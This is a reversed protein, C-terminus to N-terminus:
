GMTGALGRARAGLWVGAGISVVLDLLSYVLAPALYAPDDAVATSILVLALAAFRMGTVLAATTSDARQGAAAAGMAMGAAIILLTAPIVWSRLLSVIASWHALVGIVLAAGVAVNSIGVLPGAFAAAGTRRARWVLAIALPALILAILQSLLTRTPIAAGPLAVQIWFPLTVLNALQLLVVLSVALPLNATRSLQAAKLGAAGGAGASTLILASAQPETMPLGVTIAWAVAPVLLCNVLVLTLVLGRRRLPAVAEAFTMSVGLSLVTTVVGVVLAVQFLAALDM